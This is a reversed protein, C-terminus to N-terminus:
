HHRYFNQELYRAIKGIRGDQTARSRRPFPTPKLMERARDYGQQVLTPSGAVSGAVTCGSVRRNAELFCPM